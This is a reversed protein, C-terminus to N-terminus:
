GSAGLLHWPRLCGGAALLQGDPSVALCLLNTSPVGLQARMDLSATSDLAGDSSCSWM